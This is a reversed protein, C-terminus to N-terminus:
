KLARASAAPSVLASYRAKQPYAAEKTVTTTATSPGVRPATASRGPIFFFSNARQAATPITPQATMPATPCQTHNRPQKMM